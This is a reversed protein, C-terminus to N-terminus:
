VHIFLSSYIRIVYIYLYFVDFCIIYTPIDLYIGSIIMNPM